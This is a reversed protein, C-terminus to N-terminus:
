VPPLCREREVFVAIRRFNAHSRPFGRDLDLSCADRWRLGRERRRIRVDRGRMRGDRERRAGAKGVAEGEEEEEDASKSGFQIAM